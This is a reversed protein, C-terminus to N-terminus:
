RFKDEVIKKAQEMTPMNEQVVQPDIAEVQDQNVSFSDEFVVGGISSLDSDNQISHPDFEEFQPDIEEFQPNVLQFSFNRQHTPSVTPTSTIVSPRSQNTQLSDLKNINELLDKCNFQLRDFKENLNQTLLQVQADRKVEDDTYQEKSEISFRRTIGCKDLTAELPSLSSYGSSLRQQRWHSTLGNAEKFDEVRDWSTDGTVLWSTRQLSSFATFVVLYLLVPRNVM